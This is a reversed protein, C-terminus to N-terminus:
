YIYLPNTPDGSWSSCTIEDLYKCSLYGGKLVGSSMKLFPTEFLKLFSKGM